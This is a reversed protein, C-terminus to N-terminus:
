QLGYYAQAAGACFQCVQQQSLKSLSNTCKIVKKKRLVSKMVQHLGRQHQMGPWQGEDMYIKDMCLASIIGHIDLMQFGIAKKRRKLVTLTASVQLGSLSTSLIITM